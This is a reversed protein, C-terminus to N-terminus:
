MFFVAGNVAFQTFRFEKLSSYGGVGRGILNLNISMSRLRESKDFTDNGAVLVGGIWNVQM